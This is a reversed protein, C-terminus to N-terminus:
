ASECPYLAESKKRGTRPQQQIKGEMAYTGMAKLLALLAYRSESEWRELRKLRELSSVSNKKTAKGNCVWVCTWVYIPVDKAAGAPFCRYHCSIGVRGDVDPVHYRNM